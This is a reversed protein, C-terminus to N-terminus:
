ETKGLILDVRQTRLKKIATKEKRFNKFARKEALIRLKQGLRFM